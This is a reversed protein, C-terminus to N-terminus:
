SEEEKAEPVDKAAIEEADGTFWDILGDVDEHELARKGFTSVRDEAEQEDPADLVIWIPINFRPM